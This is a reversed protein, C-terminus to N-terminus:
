HDARPVVVGYAPVRLQVSGDFIIAAVCVTCQRRVCRVSETEVFTHQKGATDSGSVLKPFAALMGQLSALAYTLAAWCM